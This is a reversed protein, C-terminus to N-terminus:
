YWRYGEREQTRHRAFRSVLGGERERSHENIVSVIFILKALLPAHHKNNSNKIATKNKWSTFIGGMQSSLDSSGSPDVSKIDKIVDNKLALCTSAFAKKDPLSCVADKGQKILEKVREEESPTYGIDIM